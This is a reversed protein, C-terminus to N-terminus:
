HIGAPQEQEPRGNAIEEKTADRVSVVDVVFTVTQGAMPHNADITLKGNEIKSVKFLMAEGQENEFEVEAGVFRYQPPVNDLDDTFTLEPHHPGFGEEPSLVVEVRDGAVHGELAKEVKEFIGSDAGQVYGIPVDYREFVNGQPDIISYTVYVAKHRSITQAAM